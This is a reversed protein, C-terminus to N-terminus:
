HNFMFEKSNLLAWFLDELIPIPDAGETLLGRINEQEAATPPRTLCALYLHEIVADPSQGAKLLGAVLKGDRIKQHTTEGNLLHLAQSLNPEMVVECTCVSERKARGFTTLFYTTTNGDAIQVARAGLPLGRFKDRTGTVRSISDLLSEARIRRVEAHSFNRVDAANTPNATTSRQYANSLCIDRVLKRVDFDYSILRDALADLLAENAPPNSVRADDAPEVIGRAFFNAWVFNAVNQAFIRNDPSTLWDALVERRDRGALEPQPGGLFKPAMVRGGVPHKMDGGGSNFIITERPDEGPKRGIQSFFAAFGYYDDMTWRDFPHNHCQACQIRVGLFAQAVNETLKLTDQELQYLNTAPSTFTGGDSAILERVIRNIPVNAAIREQLWNYYLLMAKYSVQDTSRLGLREAWKMVWIEVFEKQALLEDVLRARKDPSGDAIFQRYREVPPLLGTIDLSARRLFEEDTCLPSPQIRLKRLKANIAEDVYNAATGTDIDDPADAPIVIAQTGVTLADFRAMILAEGREGATVCGLESVTASQDNNSIFVTLRTVDRDSGDSYRARVVLPQAAGAGRLVIDQPFVELGTVRPVDAPDAPAADRLWDMITAYREDSETFRQGGTHAVKGVAKTLLLSDSPQALNVRRGPLERTVSVYDAGPDFGFLSLRFGDQGRASGHCGGSNCGSKSLAPLVDNRFRIPAATAFGTVVLPIQITQSDLSVILTSEGDAAPHVAGDRYAAIAPNAISISADPLRNQTVGTADVQRVVLTQFDRPGDLRVSPPYVEIRAAPRSQAPASAALTCLLLPVFTIRLWAIM